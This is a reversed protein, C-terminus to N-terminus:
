PCREVVNIAAVDDLVTLSSGRKTKVSLGGAESVLEGCIVTGSRQTVLVSTASPTEPKEPKTGFWTVGIALALLATAPIVLLRSLGLQKAAKQAEELYYERYAEPNNRPNRSASFFRPSGQAALAALYIAAFASILALVLLGILWKQAYPTLKTIDENGKVFAAISFIGTLATITGAWKEATSRIRQLVEFREKDAIEIWKEDGPDVHGPPRREPPTGGHERGTGTM